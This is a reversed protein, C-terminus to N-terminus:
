RLELKAVVRRQENIEPLAVHFEGIQDFDVRPRDGQNTHSAFQVFAPQMLLRHLFGPDLNENGPLIIFEASAAGSFNPRAVKNLYPRLRGYLVDGKKFIAVSSKMDAVSGHGLIRASHAEVHELGVFRTSGGLSAPAAKQKRPRVVEALRVPVWGGPLNNM